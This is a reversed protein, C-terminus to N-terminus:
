AACASLAFREEHSVTGTHTLVDREGLRLYDDLKRVWDRMYMPNRNLAQLEAFELYANVIRNLTDLETATLYNKAISAQDRSPVSGTWNTM